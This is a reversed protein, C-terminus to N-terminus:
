DGDKQDQDARVRSTPSNYTRNVNALADEYGNMIEDYMAQTASPNIEVYSVFEDTALRDHITQL